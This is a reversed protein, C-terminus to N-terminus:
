LPKRGPYDEQRLATTDPWPPLDKMEDEGLACDLVMNALHVIPAYYWRLYRRM